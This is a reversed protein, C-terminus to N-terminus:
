KGSWYSCDNIISASAGGGNPSYNIIYDLLNNESIIATAIEGGYRCNLISIDEDQALGAIGGFYEPQSTGTRLNDHTITGYYDCFSVTCEGMLHAAIGGARMDVSGAFLGRMNVTSVCKTIDTDVAIAVIGACVSNALKNDISGVKYTCEEITGNAIFGAIGGIAGRYSSVNAATTCGIIGIKGTPSAKAGFSGIIGGSCNNNYTTSWPQNNYHMNVVHGKCHCDQITTDGDVIRGVIGGMNIDSHKSSGTGDLNGDKNLTIWATNGNNTCANLLAGSECRGLLGGLSGGGDNAVTIASKATFDGVLDGNCEINSLTIHKNAWGVLGGFNIFHATIAEKQYFTVKGTWTLNLISVKNMTCGFIGGASITASASAQCVGATVSGALTIDGGSLDITIEPVDEGVYGALGGAYTHLAAGEAVVNSGNTVNNSAFIAEASSWEGVVGGVYVEEAASTSTITGENSNYTVEGLAVATVGGVYGYKSVNSGRGAGFTVAGANHSATVASGAASYGVIGGVYSTHATAGSAVSGNAFAQDVKGSNHAVIGGVYFTSNADSTSSPAINVVGGNSCTVIYSDKDAVGVLGSVYAETTTFTADISITANNSCNEVTTKEIKAALPAVICEGSRTGNLKITSTADFAINSLTAEKVIGFLPQSANFNIIKKGNGNFSGTWPREETGIPTWEKVETMDVDAVITPVGDVCWQSVDGGSNWTQAFTKLGQGTVLGEMPYFKQKIVPLKIKAIGALMLLELETARILNADSPNGAFQLLYSVTNDYNDVTTYELWSPKDEKDVAVIDKISQKPARIELPAVDQAELLIYGESDYEMETGFQWVNIWGTAEESDSKVLKVEGYRSADSNEAWSITVETVTEGGVTTAVGKTATIWPDCEFNWAEGAERTKVTTTFSSASKTSVSYAQGVVFVNGNHAVTLADEEYEGASFTITATERADFSDNENIVMTFSGTGRHVVENDIYCWDKNSAVNWYIGENNLAVDVTITHSVSALDLSRVEEGGVSFTVEIDGVEVMEPSKDTADETTCGVFLAAVVMSMIYIFYRKM